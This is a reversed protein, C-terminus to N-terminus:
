ESVILENAYSVQNLFFTIVNLGIANKNGYYFSTKDNNHNWVKKKKENFSLGTLWYQQQIANKLFHTRVILFIVSTVSSIAITLLKLLIIYWNKKKCM